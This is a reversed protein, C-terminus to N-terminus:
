RTEAPIRLTTGGPIPYDPRWGPNLKDIERWRDGNGLRIRAIEMMTEGNPSVQYTTSSGSEPRSPASERRSSERGVPAPSTPQPTYGEIANGHRKELVHIPPIYIAQGTLDPPERRVGEAARPHERNFLLLAQAYKDTQYYRKSISAFTDDSRPRCTEEDFSEVRPTSAAAPRAPARSTPTGETPGAARLPERKRPSV